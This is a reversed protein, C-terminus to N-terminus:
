NRIDRQVMKSRPNRRRRPTELLSAIWKKAALPNQSAEEEAQSPVIGARRLKKIHRMALEQRPIPLSPRKKQDREKKRGITQREKTATATPQIGFFAVLEAPLTTTGEYVYQHFPQKMKQTVSSIFSYQCVMWETNEVPSVWLRIWNNRGM